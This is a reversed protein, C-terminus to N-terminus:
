QKVGWGPSVTFAIIEEGSIREVTLEAMPLRAATEVVSLRLVFAAGAEDCVQWNRDYHIYANHPSGPFGGLAMATEHPNKYAQYAEAGNKAAIVAHNLDKADSATFYANIIIAACVAAFVSFVAIALVQELLFLSARTREDM